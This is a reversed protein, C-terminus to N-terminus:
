WGLEGKILLPSKLYPGSPAMLHLQERGAHGSGPSPELHEWVVQVVKFQKASTKM